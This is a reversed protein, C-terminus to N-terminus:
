CASWAPLTRQRHHPTECNAAEAGSTTAGPESTGAPMLTGVDAEASCFPGSACDAIARCGTGADRRAAVSPGTASPGANEPEAALVPARTPANVSSTMATSPPAVITVIRALLTSNPPRARTSNATPRSTSSARVPSVTPLARSRRRAALSSAGYEGPNPREKTRQSIVPAPKRTNTTPAHITTAEDAHSVARSPRVQASRAARVRTTATGRRVATTPM